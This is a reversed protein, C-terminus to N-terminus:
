TDAKGHVAQWVGNLRCLERPGPDIGFYPGFDAEARGAEFDELYRQVTGRPCGTTERIQEATSGRAHLGCVMLVKGKAIRRPESLYRYPRMVFRTPETNGQRYRKLTIGVRAMSYIPRDELDSLLHLTLPNGEEWAKRGGIMSDLVAVDSARTRALLHDVCLSPGDILTGGASELGRILVGGFAEPGGFTLDFGKFSGSRYVGRTRHFYWRGCEKQIPDRHTFPDLHGPGYYYFEIETFRHPEGAVLVRSGNLLWSAIDDFWSTLQEGGELGAPELLLDTWESM